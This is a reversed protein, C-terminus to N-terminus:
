EITKRARRKKRSTFKLHARQIASWVDQTYNDPNEVFASIEEETRGSVKCLEDMNAELVGGFESLKQLVAAKVKDDGERMCGEVKDFCAMCDQMFQVLEIKKEMGGALTHSLKHLETDIERLEVRDYAM